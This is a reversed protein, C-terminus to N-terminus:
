RNFIQFDTIGTVYNYQVFIARAAAPTIFEQLIQGAVAGAVAGPVGGLSGGIAAGGGASGVNLVSEVTSKSLWLKVGWWYFDIRDIGESTSYTVMGEQNTLVNGQASYEEEHGELLDNTMSVQQRVKEIEQENLKESALKEDLVFENAENIYVYSNAKEILEESVVTFQEELTTNLSSNFNEGENENNTESIMAGSVSNISGLVLTASM